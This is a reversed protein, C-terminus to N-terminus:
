LATRRLRLYHTRIGGPDGNEDSFGVGVGLLVTGGYSVHKVELGLAEGVRLGAALLVLLM